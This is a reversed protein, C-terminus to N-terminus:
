KIKKRFFPHNWWYFSILLYLILITAWVASIIVIKNINNQEIFINENTTIKQWVDDTIELKINYSWSKKFSYDINKWELIKWNILWKYEMIQGDEDLSRNASFNINIWSKLWKKDDINIIAIPAKNLDFEDKNNWIWDWDSDEWESPDCDLEDIDDNFWDNDDDKDENNWIWDKDCDISEAPDCDFADNLDLVWDNDDDNDENNWIWDKDCDLWEEWNLPFDDKSDIIKDWDSDENIPNTWIEKEKLDSLLDWDDDDDENNWILDWDSDLWELENLPFADDEDNVWDNDDDKDDYNSIWDWDTDLWRLPDLPFDDEKDDLKDWDTDAKLQDTWIVKEEEDSLLDWDDDEDENNWIWDWDTDKWEDKNFPFDDDNDLYTDNDDDNDSNDWEWDNDNDNSERSNKPFQDLSDIIWDNDDDPDKRDPILDWDSDYDVFINKTVKNNNPNDWITKQPIVRVSIPHNNYWVIIWDVFVDDSKWAIVSIEENKWIQKELKEDYFRVYWFLDQDSNNYVTAYVRLRQNVIPDNTSFYVDKSNLWLDTEYWEWFSLIPILLIFLITFIKM